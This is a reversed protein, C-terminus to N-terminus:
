YHEIRPTKIDTSSKALDIGYIGLDSRLALELRAIGHFISRVIKGRSASDGHSIKTLHQASVSLLARFEYCINITDRGFLIAHKSDWDDVQKLLREIAVSDPIEISWAKVVGSILAYLEPYVLLRAAVLQELLRQQIGLRLKKLEARVSLRAVAASIAASIVAAILASYPALSSTLSYFGM